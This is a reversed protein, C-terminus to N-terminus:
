KQHEEWRVTPFGGPELGIRSYKMYRYTYCLWAPFALFM